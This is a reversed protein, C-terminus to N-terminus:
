SVPSGSSSSIFLRIDCGRMRGAVRGVVSTLRTPVWRGALLPNHVQLNYYPTKRHRRYRHSTPESEEIRVVSSRVPIHGLSLYRSCMKEQKM